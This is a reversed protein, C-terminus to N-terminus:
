KKSIFYNLAEPVNNFAKLVARFGMMKFVRQVQGKMNALVMDGGAEHARRLSGILSGWGSSSVFEVNELDIIIKVWGSAIIERIRKSFSESTITDLNGVLTLIVVEPDEPAMKQTIVLESM